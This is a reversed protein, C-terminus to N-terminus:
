RRGGPTPLPCLFDGDACANRFTITKTAFTKPKGLITQIATLEVQLRHHPSLPRRGAGTLKIRVTPLVRPNTPSAPLTARASGVKITKGKARATLAIALTCRQGSAGRRSITATATAGSTTVHVLKALGLAIVTVTLAASTSSGAFNGGRARRM